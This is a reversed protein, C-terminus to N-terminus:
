LVFIFKILLVATLFIFINILLPKFYVFKKNKRKIKEVYALHFIIM